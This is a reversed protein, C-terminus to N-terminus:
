GVPDSCLFLIRTGDDLSKGQQGEKQFAVEWRLGAQSYYDPENSMRLFRAREWMYSVLHLVPPWLAFRVAFRVALSVAPGVDDCHNNLYRCLDHAHSPHDNNSDRPVQQGIDAM